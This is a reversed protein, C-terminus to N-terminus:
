TEAGEATRAGVSALPSPARPRKRVARGGPSRALREHEGLEGCGPGAQQVPPSAPGATEWGAAALRKRLLAAFHTPPADIHGLLSGDSGLVPHSM